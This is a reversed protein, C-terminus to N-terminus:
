MIEVSVAGTESLARLDPGGNGLNLRLMRVPIDAPDEDGRRVTLSEGGGLVLNLGATEALSLAIAGSKTKFLLPKEYRVGRLTAAINGQLTTAQISGATDFAMNGDITSAVLDATLRKLKVDGHVAHLSLQAGDPVLVVVDVRGAFAGNANLGRDTAEADPHRVTVSIGDSADVDISFVRSDAILQQINGIVIVNGENSRRAEVNGFANRVSLRRNTPLEGAWEFRDLRIDELAPADAPTGAPTACATVALVALISFSQRSVRM